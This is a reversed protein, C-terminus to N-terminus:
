STSRVFSGFPRVSSAPAAGAGSLVPGAFQCWKCYIAQNAGIRNDPLRIPMPLPTMRVGTHLRGGFQAAALDAASM